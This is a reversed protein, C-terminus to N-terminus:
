QSETDEAAARPDVHSLGAHLLRMAPRARGHLSGPHPATQGRSETGRPDTRRGDDPERRRSARRAHPLLPHETREASRHLRRVGRARLRRANRQAGVAWAPLGGVHATARRRGRLGNREGDPLHTTHNGDTRGTDGRGAGGGRRAGATDAGSGSAPPVGGLCPHRVVTGHYRREGESRSARLAQREAESRERSAGGRAGTGADRGCRLPRDAGRFLPRADLAVTLAVGTM